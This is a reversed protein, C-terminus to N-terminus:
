RQAADQRVMDAAKEALMTTAATTNASVIRPMVSADVVRLGAMSHVRLRADVLDGHEGNVRPGMRCSGVPHYVTDAQERLLFELEVDSQAHASADRGGWAALAPQATIRRVRQFGRRLREMDEPVGLFNPDIRPAALRDKGNLQVSGRSAPQLVCIHISYGHGWLTKRGHDALQAPVFHLQLDPQPADPQSKLFGGAEALNSTLLGTRDRRWDVM